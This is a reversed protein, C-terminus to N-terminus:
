GERNALLGNLLLDEVFKEYDGSLKDLDTGPPVLSRIMPEASVFFDFIGVVALYLFLPDFPRLQGAQDQEGVNRYAAVAALNLERHRERIAESPADALEDIMLRQMHKASRSFKHTDHVRERIFQAPDGAFEPAQPIGGLLDNVVELLLNSRDKFYYRVLAPDVGAKRAVLSITIRGPPLERLIEKTSEIIVERGVGGDSPRGQGRRRTKTGPM